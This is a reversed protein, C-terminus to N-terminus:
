IQHQFKINTQQHYVCYIHLTSTDKRQTIKQEPPINLEEYTISDARFHAIIHTDAFPGNHLTSYEYWKKDSITLITISTRDIQAVLRAWHWAQQAVEENHAHAYGINHWKYIFANRHSGFFENRHFPSFFNNLTTSCTIASSCNLNSINFIYYIYDLILILLTYQANKLPNNKPICYKYKQYLWM